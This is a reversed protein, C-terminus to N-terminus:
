YNASEDPEDSVRDHSEDGSRVANEIEQRVVSVGVAGVQAHVGSGEVGTAAGTTAFSRSIRGPLHYLWRLIRM